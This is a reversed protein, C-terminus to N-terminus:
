AWGFGDKPEEIRVVPVGATHLLETPDVYKLANRAVFPAAGATQGRMEDAMSTILPRLENPFGEPLATQELRTAAKEM